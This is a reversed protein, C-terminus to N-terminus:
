SLVTYNLKKWAQKGTFNADGSWGIYNVGRVYRYGGPAVIYEQEIENAYVIHILFGYTWGDPALALNNGFWYIGTSKSAWYEVTDEDASTIPNNERFVLTNQLSNYLDTFYPTVGDGVETKTILENAIRNYFEEGTYPLKYALIRIEKILFSLKKLTGM